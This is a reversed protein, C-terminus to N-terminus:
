KHIPVVLDWASFGFDIWLCSLFGSTLYQSLNAYLLGLVVHVSLIDLCYIQRGNSVLVTVNNKDGEVAEQEANRCSFFTNREM